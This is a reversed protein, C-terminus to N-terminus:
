ILFSLQELPPNNNYIINNTSSNNIGISKGIPLLEFTHLNYNTILVEVSGTGKSNYSSNNYNYNLYNIHVNFSNVFNKLLDNSKGKHEIVNSLAYRIGMNSLQNMLEYMQNEQQIGWNVFGRNGDNYNGTTILYPPDLYVFDDPSLSSLDVENFLKDTFTANISHLKNVFLRLNKEMNESFRSRNRGFPNNFQMSNNFRFQYNYSYSVLVYLDLPNPNKNYDNRFKIYGEENTKSLDYEKIRSKIKFILKDINQTSFFRFMENIKYNMDNFIYYNAKVNIGVNAGGSFLDLFTNINAPFLPIIQNLLKYKGGIYNLPSKIFKQKKGVWKNEKVAVQQTFSQPYYKVQGVVEKKQIYLLIEYLDQNKSPRKSKYKRYPIKEIKIKNNLSNEKLLSILENEPIIGENNYSVFIHTSDLNEILNQMSALANRKISYNSRLKSWEFVKTKGTLVPKNNRAVNELLHYNSAYQRNNYPTDIYTIDASITKILKNADM